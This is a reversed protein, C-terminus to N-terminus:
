VGRAEDESFTLAEKPQDDTAIILANKQLAANKALHVLLVKPSDNVSRCLAFSCHM